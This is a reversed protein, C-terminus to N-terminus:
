SAHEESRMTPDILEVNEIDYDEWGAFNKHVRLSLVTFRPFKCHVPLHFQV